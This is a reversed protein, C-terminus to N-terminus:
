ETQPPVSPERHLTNKDDNTVQVNLLALAYVFAPAAIRMAAHNITLAWFIYFSVLFLHAKNNIYLFLPTVILILLAVIGFAGHEALLRTIENHSAAVIGTLQERYGKNNGVGIGWIPNDMFMQIETGAIQERGGLSDEKERGRADQNAYRNEILGGTQIVSYSWVLSGLVFGILVLRLIFNRTRLKAFWFLTFFFVAMMALATFVGGRSFTVIGRYSAILLLGLHVLQEKRTKSYMMLLALFCFMGLGLVTSVQNPGFGGSTEFNSQTGTVVDKISPTYLFLYVLVSVLPLALAKIIYQMQELTVKRQYCYIASIGLTLEGLINFMIAKRVNVGDLMTTAGIYVGPVLLMIFFLYIWSRKSFGTYFMGLILFYLVEYKGIEHVLNGGTMRLLVESGVAYAALVLAENNKNKTNLLLVTGMILVLFGYVKSLLPAAFVAIGLAVHAALVTTYTFKNGRM